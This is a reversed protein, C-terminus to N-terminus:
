ERVLDADFKICPNGDIECDNVEAYFEGEPDQAKVGDLRAVEEPKRSERRM